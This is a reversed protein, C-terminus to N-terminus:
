SGTTKGTHQSEALGSAQECKQADKVCHMFNVWLQYTINILGDAHKVESVALRILIQRSHNRLNTDEPIHHRTNQYIAVSIKSSDAAEM